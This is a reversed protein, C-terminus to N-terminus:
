FLDEDILEKNEVRNVETGGSGSGALGTEFPLGTGGESMRGAHLVRTSMHAAAFGWFLLGPM